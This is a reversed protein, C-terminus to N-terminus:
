DINKFQLNDFLRLIRPNRRVCQIFAKSTSAVNVRDRASAVEKTPKKTSKVKKEKSEISIKAIIKYLNQAPKQLANAMKNCDTSNEEIARAYANLAKAIEASESSVVKSKGCAPFLIVVFYLSIKLM